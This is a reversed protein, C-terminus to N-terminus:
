SLSVRGVGESSTVHKPTPTGVKTVLDFGLGLSLGYALDAGSTHGLRLLAALSADARRRDRAALAALLDHVPEVAQGRAAWRLMERAVSTTRVGLAVDVLRPEAAPGELARRVLLIGALTDDGSPTLGPGLGGVAWAAGALDDHELRHLAVALRDGYRAESLAPPPAAALVEGALGHAAAGALAPPDPLAGRWGAATTLDVHAAGIRLDRGGVVVVPDGTALRDPRLATRVHLPGAM